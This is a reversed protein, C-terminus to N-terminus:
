AKEANRLKSSDKGFVGDASAKRRLWAAPMAATSKRLPQDPRDAPLAEIVDDDEALAMHAPGKGSIGGVVVM